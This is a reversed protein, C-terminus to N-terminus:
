KRAAALEALRQTASSAVYIMFCVDHLQELRLSASICEFTSICVFVLLCFSEFTYAVYMM